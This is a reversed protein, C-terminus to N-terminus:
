KKTLIVSPIKKVLDKRIYNFIKKESTVKFQINKKETIFGDKEFLLNFEFFSTEPTNKGSKIAKPWFAYLGMTTNMSLVPNKWSEDMMEVLSKLKSDWLSIKINDTFDLKDNIYVFGMIHSFNFYHDPTHNELKDPATLSKLHEFGPRIKSSITEISEFIINIVDANFQMDKYCDLEAHILGRESVIYKPPLRNLAYAKMDLLCKPCKCIDNRSKLLESLTDEVISEVTNKLEIPM